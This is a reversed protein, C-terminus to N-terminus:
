PADHYGREALNYDGGGRLESTTAGGGVGMFEGAMDIRVVGGVWEATEDSGVM